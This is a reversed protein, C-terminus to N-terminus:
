VVELEAEFYAVAPATAVILYHGTTPLKITTTGGAVVTGLVTAGQRVELTVIPKGAGSPEMTLRLTQGASADLGGPVVGDTAGTVLAGSTGPLFTIAVEALGGSSSLDVFRRKTPAGVASLGKGYLSFGQRVAATPCCAGEPDTFRDIFLAHDRIAISRVGDYARDGTGASVLRTAVAGQCSYVHVDTFQGTGGTNYVTVVATEADTTGGIDGVVIENVHMAVYDPGNLAGRVGEANTVAVKGIDPLDFTFNRFDVGSCPNAAPASSEPVATSL